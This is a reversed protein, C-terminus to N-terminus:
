KIALVPCPSLGLTHGARSRQASWLERTCTKLPIIGTDPGSPWNLPSLDSRRTQTHGGPQPRCGRSWREQGQFPSGGRGGGPGMHGLAEAQSRPGGGSRSHCGWLRPCAPPDLTGNSSWDTSTVVVAVQLAAAGPPAKTRMKTKM